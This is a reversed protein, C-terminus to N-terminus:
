MLRSALTMIPYHNLKISVQKGLTRFDLSNRAWHMLRIFKSLDRFKGHRLQLTTASMSATYMGGLPGTKPKIILCMIHIKACRRAIRNHLHNPVFCGHLPMAFAWTKTQMSVSRLSGGIGTYETSGLSCFCTGVVIDYSIFGHSPTHQLGLDSRM